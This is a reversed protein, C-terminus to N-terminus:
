NVKTYFSPKSDGTYGDKTTSLSFSITSTDVQYISIRLDDVNFIYEENLIEKFPAQIENDGITATLDSNSSSIVIINNDETSAWKGDLTSLKNSNNGSYVSFVILLALAFVVLFIPIIIKKKKM